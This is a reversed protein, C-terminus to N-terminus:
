STREMQTVDFIDLHKPSLQYRERLYNLFHDVNESTVGLAELPQFVDTEFIKDRHSPDKALSCSLYTSLFGRSNLYILQALLQRHIDYRRPNFERELREELSIQQALITEM